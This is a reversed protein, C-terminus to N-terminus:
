EISCPFCSPFFPQTLAALVAAYILWLKGIIQHGKRIRGEAAQSAQGDEAYGSVVVGLDQRSFRRGSKKRPGFKAEGSHNRELGLGISGPKSILATYTSETPLYEETGQYVHNKFVVKDDNTVIREWFWPLGQKNQLMTSEGRETQDRSGKSKEADATLKEDKQKRGADISDESEEDSSTSSSEDDKEKAGKSAQRILHSFPHEDQTSQTEKEESGETNLHGDTADVDAESASNSEKGTLSAFQYSSPSNKSDSSSPPLLHAFPYSPSADPSSDSESSKEADGGDKTSGDDSAPALKYSYQGITNDEKSGSGSPPPHKVEALSVDTSGAPREKPTYGSRDESSPHEVVSRKQSVSGKASLSEDDNEDQIGHIYVKPKNPVNPDRFKAYYIGNDTFYGSEMQLFKPFGGYFIHGSIRGIDPLSIRNEMCFENTLKTPIRFQVPYGEQFSYHDKLSLDGTAVTPDDGFQKRKKLWFTISKELLEDFTARLFLSDLYRFETRGPPSKRVHESSKEGSCAYELYFDSAHEGYVENVDRPLDLKLDKMNVEVTAYEQVECKFM